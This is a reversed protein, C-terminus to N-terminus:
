ILHIFFVKLWTMEFFWSDQHMFNKLANHHLAAINFITFNTTYSKQFQLFPFVICVCQTCQRQEKDAATVCM